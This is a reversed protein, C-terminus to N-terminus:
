SLFQKSNLLISFDTCSNRHLGLLNLGIIKKIGSNVKDLLTRTQKSRIIKLFIEKNRWFCVFLQDTIYNM